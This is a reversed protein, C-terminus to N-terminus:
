ILGYLHVYYTKTFNLYRILLRKYGNSWFFVHFCKKWTIFIVNGQSLLISSRHERIEKQARQRLGQHSVFLFVCPNCRRSHVLSYLPANWTDGQKYLWITWLPGLATYPHAFCFDGLCSRLLTMGQSRDWFQIQVNDLGYSGIKWGSNWSQFSGEEM